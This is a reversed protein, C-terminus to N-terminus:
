KNFEKEIDDIIMEKDYDGRLFLLMSWCIHRFDADLSHFCSNCPTNNYQMGCSTEEAFINILEKIFEKTEKQNHLKKM